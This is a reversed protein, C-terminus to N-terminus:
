QRAERTMAGGPMGRGRWTEASLFQRKIRCAMPTRGPLLRSVQENTLSRNRTLIRIEDDNWRRNNM